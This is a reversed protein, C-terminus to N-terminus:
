IPAQFASRRPHSATKDKPLSTISFGTTRAHNGISQNSGFAGQEAFGPAGGPVYSQAQDYSFRSFLTDKTSLNEDVRIDFKGEDLKRVPQSVYNYGLAPNNTNPLPYLNILARGIPNILSQPIINCPTGAAQTGDAAVPLPKGGSCAFPAGSSSNPNTLQITNPQGFPNDSFDGNRMAVTPM